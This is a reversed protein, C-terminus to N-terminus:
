DGTEENVDREAENVLKDVDDMVDADIEAIQVKDIPKYGATDRILEWFKANGDKMEKVAVQVMYEAGTLTNGNKDKSVDSELWVLLQKKLDAKERRAKGSNIGGKRQIERLEETSRSEFGKGKINEYNAM